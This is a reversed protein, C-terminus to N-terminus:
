GSSEKLTDVTLRGCRTCKTWNSKYQNGCICIVDIINDADVQVGVEEPYYKVKRKPFPVEVHHPKLHEVTYPVDVDHRVPNDLVIQKDVGKIKWRHTTRQHVVENVPFRPMEIVEDVPQFIYNPYEEVKEVPVPKKVKIPQDIVIFRPKYIVDRVTLILSLSGFKLKM